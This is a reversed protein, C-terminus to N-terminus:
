GKGVVLVLEGCYGATRWIEFMDSFKAVMPLTIFLSNVYNVAKELKM